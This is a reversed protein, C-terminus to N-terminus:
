RDRRTLRGDATQKRGRPVLEVLTGSKLIELDWSAVVAGQKGPSLGM